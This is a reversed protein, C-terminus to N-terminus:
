DDNSKGIDCNFYMYFVLIRTLRKNVKLIYDRDILLAVLENFVEDFYKLERQRPIIFTQQFEEIANQYLNQLNTNQPDNLFEQVQFAYSMYSKRLSKAFEDSMNNIQNKEEYSTRNVPRFDKHKVSIDFVNAFHPIIEALDDPRIIPSMTLPSLKVMEVIYRYRSLWSNLDDIGFVGINGIDLGTNESIYKKIQPEAGGTLKRNAFLMYNDLENKDILKKIKVVEESLTAGKSGESFFSSDLFHQNIGSTHKAQIITIGTWPKSRSPYENATGVFKGDRGGDPGPAFGQTAEGLTEKCIQVALVEFDLENMDQYQYM